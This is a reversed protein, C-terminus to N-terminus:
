YSGGRSPAEDRLCALLLALHSIFAEAQEDDLQGLFRTVPEANRHRMQAVAPKAAESLSVIIRRRDQEDHDRDVLGARALEGVVLSAHALTMQTRQALDSVSLPGSIALTILLGVHRQGLQAAGRLGAPIDGARRQYALVLQPLLPALRAVYRHSNIL